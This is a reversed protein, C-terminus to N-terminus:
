RSEQSRHMQGGPPAGVGRGKQARLKRRIQISDISRAALEKKVADIEATLQKVSVAGPALQDMKNVPLESFELIAALLHEPEIEGFQGAMAEYSALQIVLEISTSIKM